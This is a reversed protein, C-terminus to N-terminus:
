KKRTFIAVILTTFIGMIPTSIIAQILYNKLNFFAEAEAQTSLGNDVAYQTANAFYNPSIVTSILVQVVPSLLTIFATMILGMILGQKYTMKGGYFNKRKDLLAFVYVLVAPIAIFNTFIPHKDIHTSHFGAIREIIMWTIMMLAFIAAWKMEITLNKM